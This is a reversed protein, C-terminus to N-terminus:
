CMRFITSNTANVNSQLFVINIEM